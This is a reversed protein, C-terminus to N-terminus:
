NHALTVTEQLLCLHQLKNKSGIEADKLVRTM